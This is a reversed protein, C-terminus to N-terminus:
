RWQFLSPGRTQPAKPAFARSCFADVTPSHSRSYSKVSLERVNTSTVLRENVDITSGDSMTSRGPEIRDEEVIDALRSKLMFVMERAVVESM